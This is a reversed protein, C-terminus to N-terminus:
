GSAATPAPRVNLNSCFLNGPDFRRKVDGLRALTAPPYAAHLAAEDRTGLFSVFAGSGCGAALLEAEFDAVWV